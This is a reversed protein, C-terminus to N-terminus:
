HPYDTGSPDKAEHRFGFLQGFVMEFTIQAQEFVDLTLKPVLVCQLAEERTYLVGPQM